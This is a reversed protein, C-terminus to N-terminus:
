LLVRVLKANKRLFSPHRTSTRLLRPTKKKRTIPRQEEPCDNDDQFRVRKEKKEEGDHSNRTYNRAPHYARRMCGLCGDDDPLYKKEEYGGFHPQAPPPPPPIYLPPANPNPIQIPPLGPPQRYRRRSKGGQNQFFEDVVREQEPGIGCRQATRPCLVGTFGAANAGDINLKNDDFFLIKSPSDIKWKHQFDRLGAVKTPVINTQTPNYVFDEGKMVNLPFGQDQLPVDWAYPKSRATNLGFVCGNDKCMQIVKKPDGCTLTDDIDFVCGCKMPEFQFSCRECYKQQEETFPARRRKKGCKPCNVVGSVNRGSAKELSEKEEQKNRNRLQINANVFIKKRDLPLKNFIHTIFIKQNILQDHFSLNRATLALDNNDIKGIIIQQREDPLKSFVVAGSGEPFEKFLEVFHGAWDEDTFPSFSRVFETDQFVDDDEM